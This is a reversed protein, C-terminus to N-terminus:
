PKSPEPQTLLKPSLIPGFDRENPRRIVIGLKDDLCELLIAEGPIWGLWFLMPRPITVATSSGNRVLKQLARPM